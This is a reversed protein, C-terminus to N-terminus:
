VEEVMMVGQMAKIAGRIQPTVPYPQPLKVDIERGYDGPICLTISAKNRGQVQGLLTALSPIAGPHNLHIRLQSRLAQDAVTDIPQVANALLKVGDGDPDSVTLVVNRGPELFERSAELVDSFVTVEYLGTPDSPPVLLAFLREASKREQKASVSGAIKAILPGREALKTIEALTKGYRADCRRCTTTWRTARCTSGWRRINM